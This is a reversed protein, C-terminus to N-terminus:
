NEGILDYFVNESLIEIDQGSLKLQEAKKQKNSKGGKILPCYDNNGLILYNTKKTVSNAIIAGCNVVLQMAEKRTMRELKGTFCCVKQYFFNSEDIEETTPKISHLDISYSSQKKHQTKFNELSGFQEVLTEYLKLFLEYTAQCDSLSRHANNNIINYYDIMDSLRHHKFSKHLNRSLRLTDIFDNEFQFDFFKLFNDYLFNIDFNINHGILIDNGIFNRFDSLVSIIDPADSLMKNTIGTLETIFPDVYYYMEGKDNILFDSGFDELEDDFLLISDPKILSSFTEEIKGDRIKIAGIEIISDFSPDLGTTETDIVTYNSPFDILSKGKNRINKM